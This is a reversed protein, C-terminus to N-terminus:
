KLVSEGGPSDWIEVVGTLETGVFLHGAKETISLIAGIYANLEFAYIDFIEWKNDELKLLFGDWGTGCWLVGKSDQYLSVVDWLQGSIDVNSFISEAYSYVGFDTGIWLTGNSGVELATIYPNWFGDIDSHYTIESGKKSVLGMSTGIWLTGDPAMKLATAWTSDAIFSPFDIELSWATQLSDWKYLAYRSIAWIGYTEDIVMGEVLFPCTDAVVDWSGSNYRLLGKEKTAVYFSNQDDVEIYGITEAGLPKSENWKAGNFYGLQMDFTLAWLTGEKDTEVRYIQNDPIGSNGKHYVLRADFINITITDNPLITLMSDLLISNENDDFFFLELDGDVPIEDFLVGWKGNDLEIASSVEIYFDTGEFYIYNGEVVDEKDISLLLSGMDSLTDMYWLTDDGEITVTSNITGINEDSKKVIINYEGNVIDSFFYEGKQNTRTSILKESSLKVPNADRPVMRVTASDVPNGASDRVIGAVVPNGIESGGSVDDGCSFILLILGFLLVTSMKSMRM